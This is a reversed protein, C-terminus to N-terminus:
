VFVNEKSSNVDPSVDSKAPAAPVVKIPHETILQAMANIKM